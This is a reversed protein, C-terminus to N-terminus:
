HTRSSTRLGYRGKRIVADSWEVISLSNKRRGKSYGGGGWEFRVNRLFNEEFRELWFCNYAIRLTGGFSVYVVRLEYICCAMSRSTGPSAWVGGEEGAWM